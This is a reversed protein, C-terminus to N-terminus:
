NNKNGFLRLYQPMKTLRSQTIAQPIEIMSPQLSSEPNRLIKVGGKRKIFLSREDNFRSKDVSRRKKTFRSFDGSIALVMRDDKKQGACKGEQYFQLILDKTKKNQAKELLSNKSDVIWNVYESHKYYGIEYGLLFANRLLVNIRKKSEKKTGKLWKLIDMLDVGIM